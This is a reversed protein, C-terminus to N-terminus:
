LEDNELDEYLKAGYKLLLAEMQQYKEIYQKDDPLNEEMDLIDRLIDLATVAQGPHTMSDFDLNVDANHELLVRATDVHGGYVNWSLPHMRLGKPYATRVNPDAKKKLLLRTVETQGYIGAVHLCTEGEKSQLHVYSPNKEIADKVKDLNGHTCDNLFELPLFSLPEDPSHDAAENNGNTRASTFVALLILAVLSFSSCNLKRRKMLCILYFFFYTASKNISM